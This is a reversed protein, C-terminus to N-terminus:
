TDMKTTMSQIRSLLLKRFKDVKYSYGNSLDAPENSSLSPRNIKRGRRLMYDETGLIYSVKYTPYNIKCELSNMVQVQEMAQMRALDEDECANKRKNRKLFIKTKKKGHVPPSPYPAFAQDIPFPHPESPERGLDMLRITLRTQSNTEPILSHEFRYINDDHVIVRANAKYLEDVFNEPNRMHEYAYLHILKDDVEDTAIALLQKSLNYILKDLTFVFFSWTGLVTRCEDEYKSSEVDGGLFTYLLDLFRIYSDNTTKDNSGNWKDNASKEKAEKLRSYLTQHLRFFVYFSDSGYFVRPDNGDNHSVGPAYKTIPKVTELFREEAEVESEAKNDHAVDDPKGNESDCSSRFSAFNDEEFDRNPSLEGEEKEADKPHSDDEKVVNTKTVDHRLPVNFMPEVFTTWIMMCKDFQELTCNEQIYYKLIQYMDEHVSLDCYEFEQHPSTIERRSFSFHRYSIEEKSTVESIEKIEALLAKTSLSKQDQQKFYFSRHDLSKHYNKAYIDAWVKNFDYLCMEWEEEKQKLRTLIVPLAVSENRKLLDIVDLGNDGYLREICRLHLVTLPKEDRKANDTKTLNNLRKEVRKATAKVSELLMELEYRDDECRFLTEEYQNKRMHKFSYDESGSTVSVWRDNLVEARKPIRYNKPLLRYSPTCNVCNSLDLEHIPKAYEDKKSLLSRKFGSVSKSGNTSRDGYKNEHSREVDDSVDDRDRDHDESKLSGPLKGSRLSGSLFDNREYCDIFEDVEEMVDPYGGLLKSVLTQLEERTIVDTCYHIICRLFGQYDDVNHLRQKVMEYLRCVQGRMDQPVLKSVHDEFPASSKWKQTIGHNKGSNHNKSSDVYLNSQTAGPVPLFNTFEQFLDPDNHLLVAVEQHVKSVSKSGKRYMNLINLFSKYVRDEGGFRVKNVFGIAEEFEPTKNAETLTIKYGNPLFTNFGLILKPHGKFLAKVSEIVGATDIRQAKFDKMVELFEEYKNTQDKFMDKVNKLYTLADSTTLKNASGGSMAPARFSTDGSVADDRSRKM